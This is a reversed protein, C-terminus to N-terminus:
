SILEDATDRYTSYVTCNFGLSGLVIVATVSTMRLLLIIFIIKNELIFM